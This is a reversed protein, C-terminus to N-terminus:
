CCIFLCVFLCILIILWMQNHISFINVQYNTGITKAEVQCDQKRGFCLAFSRFEQCHIGPVLVHVKYETTIFFSEFEFFHSCSDTLEFATSPTKGNQEIVRLVFSLFCVHSLSCLVSTHIRKRVRKLVLALHCHTTILVCVASKTHHTHRKKLDNGFLCLM